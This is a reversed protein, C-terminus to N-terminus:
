VFGGPLAFANVIPSNVVTFTYRFQKFEAFQAARDGLNQVYRDIGGERYAGGFQQVLKPHERRGIAVDDELSQLGTYSLRGTAPNTALCAGLCGAGAACGGLRLAQRRTLGTGGAFGIKVGDM